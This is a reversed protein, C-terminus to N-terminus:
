EGPLRVAFTTGRGIASSATIEGGLLEVTKKAIALGLGTGESQEGGQREVQRFEDFIHPLDEPPIGIGTDAVTLETAGNNHALSLTIHGSDTFKAANGLLNMVVQRLRDPDTTIQGVDSLERRLEVGPKVISELADACENALTRVDTPPANLEIRGAEIRSLDLIDNILNLLNGSFKEINQLNRQEREDLRDTLKRRLIRSYGIIANMPTRLDHSMRALFDSKHRSAEQIQQNAATLAQNSEELATTKQQLEDHLSKARLLSKVRARLENPDVPKNIFDDAGAEIGMLKSERDALATVLVIPTFQTEAQTKLRRCVDFGSIDPMMVDLLVIDPPDAAVHELAEKGSGALQLDYHLPALIGELVRLNRPEDDVILVRAVRANM